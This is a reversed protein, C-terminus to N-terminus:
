AMEKRVALLAAEVETYAAEIQAALEGAGELDEEVASM